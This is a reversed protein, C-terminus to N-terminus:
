SSKNRSATLGVDAACFACGVGGILGIVVGLRGGDAEGRGGGGATVVRIMPLAVRGEGVRGRGGVASSGVSDCLGCSSWVGSSYGVM